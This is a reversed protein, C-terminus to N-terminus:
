YVYLLCLCFCNANLGPCQLCLTLGPWTSNVRQNYRVICFGFHHTYLKEKGKGLERKFTIRVRCLGSGNHFSGYPVRNFGAFVYSEAPGYIPEQGSLTFLYPSNRIFDRYPESSNVFHTKWTVSEDSIDITMNAGKEVADDEVAMLSKGDITEYMYGPLKNSYVRFQRNYVQVTACNSTYGHNSGFGYTTNADSITATWLRPEREYILEIKAKKYPGSFDLRVVAQGDCLGPKSSATPGYIFSVQTKTPQTSPIVRGKNLDLEVEVKSACQLVSNCPLTNTQPTILLTILVFAKLEKM